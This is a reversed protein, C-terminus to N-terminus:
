SSRESNEVKTPDVRQAFLERFMQIIQLFSALFLVLGAIGGWLVDESYSVKLFLSFAHSYLFIGTILGVAVILLTFVKGIDCTRHKWIACAFYALGLVAIVVLIVIGENM